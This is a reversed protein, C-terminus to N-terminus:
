RAQRPLLLDSTRIWDGRGLQIFSKEALYDFPKRKERFLSVDSLTRNSSVCELIERRVAFNAGQWLNVLNQSFDFVSLVLEGRAPDYNDAEKMQREISRSGDITGIMNLFTLVIQHHHGNLVKHSIKLPSFNGKGWKETSSRHCTM